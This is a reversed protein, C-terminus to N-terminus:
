PKLPNKKFSVEDVFFGIFEVNDPLGDRQTHVSEYKAYESIPKQMEIEGHSASM